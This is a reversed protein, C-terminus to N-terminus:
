RKSIGKSKIFMRWDSVENIMLKVVELVWKRSGLFTRFRFAEAGEYIRNLQENMYLHRQGLREFGGQAGLAFMVTGFAPLLLSLMNFFVPVKIIMHDKNPLCALDPYKQCAFHIFVRVVTIIAGAVFFIIGIKELGNGISTMHKAKKDHYCIQEILAEQKFRCINNDVLDKDVIMNPLGIERVICKLYWNVWSLNDNTAYAPIEVERLTVGIPLLYTQYRISEALVRYDIFKQHWKNKENKVGVIRVFWYLLVAQSLFGIVNVINANDGGWRWYFGIALCINAFLPILARLMGASRYKDAYFIANCNAEELFLDFYHKNASEIETKSFSDDKTNEQGIGDKKHAKSSFLKIISNYILARSKKDLEEEFYLYPFVNCNSLDECPILMRTILEKIKAKWTIEEECDVQMDRDICIVPIGKERALEVIDGTGGLGKAPCGDWFALLIDAHELMVSGANLYSKAKEYSDGRLNIEYVSSAKTLLSSFRLKSEASQFDKIYENRLYPLPCQLEYGLELSAEAAISDFGEALCTILNLCPNDKSYLINSAQQHIDKINQSVHTFIEKCLERLCNEENISIDRHGTIGISFVLRTKRPHM